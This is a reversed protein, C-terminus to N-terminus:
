TRTTDRAHKSEMIPAPHEPIVDGDKLLDFTNSEVVVWIGYSNDQYCYAFTADDPLGTICEAHIEGPKFLNVLMNGHILMRRYRM